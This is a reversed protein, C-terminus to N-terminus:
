LFPPPAHCVSLERVFNVHFVKQEPRVFGEPLEDRLVQSEVFPNAVERSEGV